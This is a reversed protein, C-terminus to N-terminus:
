KKLYIKVKLTAQVTGAKLFEEVHTTADKLVRHTPSVYFDRVFILEKEAKLGLKKDRAAHITNAITPRSSKRLSFGRRTHALTPYLFDLLFDWEHIAVKIDNL